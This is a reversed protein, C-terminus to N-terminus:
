EVFTLYGWRDPIHMDIEGQPSWVWNDEPLGPIKRLNEDVPWEVRSFNIRWTDGPGPPCNSHYPAIDCFPLALTVSWGKSTVAPNNLEGDLAVGSILGHFRFNNDPQGNQRYPVPLRLDWVTGLANIELELYDKSQGSPDLFVEFDNDHFIVSNRETLTAWIQPEEMEAAIYLYANDWLMKVRTQFRPLPKVDGEIDM